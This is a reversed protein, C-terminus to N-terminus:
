AHENNAEQTAIDHFIDGQSFAMSTFGFNFGLAPGQPVKFKKVKLEEQLTTCAAEISTKQTPQALVCFRNADYYIVELQQSKMLEKLATSFKRLVKDKIEHGYVTIMNPMDLVWFTFLVGSNLMAFHEDLHKVFLYKTNKALTVADNYLDDELEIIRKQYTKLKEYAVKVARHDNNDIATVIHQTSQSIGSVSEATERAVKDYDGYSKFQNFIFTRLTPLDMMDNERAAVAVYTQFIDTLALEGDKIHAHLEENFLTANITYFHQSM